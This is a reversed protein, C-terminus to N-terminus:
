LQKLPIAQNILEIKHVHLALLVKILTARLTVVNMHCAQAAAFNCFEFAIQELAELTLDLALTLKVDEDAAQLDTAVAGCAASRVLQANCRIAIERVCFRSGHTSGQKAM